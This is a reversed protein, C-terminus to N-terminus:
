DILYLHVVGQSGGRRAQLAGGRQQGAVAAGGAGAYHRAADRCVVRVRGPVKEGDFEAVVAPLVRRALAHVGGRERGDRGGECGEGVSGRGLPVGAGPVVGDLVCVLVRVLQRVAERREDVDARFRTAGRSDLVRDFPRAAPAPDGVGRVAVRGLVPGDRCLSRRRARRAFLRAGLPASRTRDVCVHAPALAPREHQPPPPPTTQLPIRVVYLLSPEASSTLKRDSM